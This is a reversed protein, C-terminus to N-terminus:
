RIRKLAKEAAKRVKEDEDKLTQVLAEKARGDRIEGLAIASLERITNNEDKLAQKLPEVAPEGIKIIGNMAIYGVSSTIDYGLGKYVSAKGLEVKDEVIFSQILPEVARSGFRLIEDWEPQLRGGKGFINIFMKAFLYYVRESDNAPTWSSNILLAAASTRIPLHKNKLALVITEVAKEDNIKKLAYIAKRRGHVDKTEDNLFQVLPEIVKVDGIYGLADAVMEQVVKDEDELLQILPEVAPEGITGLAISAEEALDRRDVIYEKAKVTQILPEIAPEGIIGLIEELM